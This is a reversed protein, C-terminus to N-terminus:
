VDWHVARHEKMQEDIDMSLNYCEMIIQMEGRRAKERPNEGPMVYVPYDEYDFTDCMIIVHTAGQEIGEEIWQKIEYRSTAM